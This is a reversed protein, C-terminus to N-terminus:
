NWKKTALKPNRTALQKIIKEAKTQGKLKAILQNNQNYIIITPLSKVDFTTAFSAKTDTIFIINDHNNLKYQQAFKQIQDPKEFSVFVLQALQLKQINQHIEQAEHNCYGCDSNFYIFVTAVHAKLNQNTFAKGELTKYEFPPMTKIFAAVQKKHNITNVIKSAMVALLGVALIPITIKLLKKM